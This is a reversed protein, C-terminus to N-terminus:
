RWVWRGAVWWSRPIASTIESRRVAHLAVAMPETLAASDLGLGNPVAFTM